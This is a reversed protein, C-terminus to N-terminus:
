ARGGRNNGRAAAWDPLTEGGVCCLQVRRRKIAHWEHSANLKELAYARTTHLLRFVTKDATIRAGLLSKDVLSGLIDIVASVPTSDDDLMVPLASQLDFSGTFVALRRLAVQELNSLTSYSWDLSARLSRHRAPATRAGQTLLTLCDSLGAAVAHVGLVDARMVALEISLPLGDLRRCIAAVAGVDAETLEFTDRAELARRAFLSVASFALAETVSLPGSTPALALPALRLVSEDSTRLSQRSTALIHVEPALALVQEVVISVAQSVHECSDLILLTSPRPSASDPPPVLAHAITSSVTLPDCTTGLDVFCVRTFDGPALREGAALAVATKGVGGPGVITVLRRRRLRAALAGLVTDRGILNTM